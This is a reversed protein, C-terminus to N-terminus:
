RITSYQFHWIANSVKDYLVDLKYLTNNKWLEVTHMLARSGRPDAAGKSGNIAQELVQVPVFRAPNEMHKAASVSFGLVGASREAAAIEPLASMMILVYYKLGTELVEGMAEAYPQFHINPNYVPGYVDHAASEGRGGPLNGCSSQLDMCTGLNYRGDPDIYKFPNSNAYAFRNFTEGTTTNTTVPDPSLFRGAVPDYYRQQMYVLGTDADNMHGTFGLTPIAGQVSKGYPEYKTQSIMGGLADTRATPSGLADTHLFQTGAPGVEAIAHNHLYIYRTAAGVPGAQLIQGDQSYIQIRNVGDTGVVSIRHGLGDYGYSAVGPASAMRNGLDFTYQKGDRQTINGQVDYSYNFNYGTSGSVSMLRNTGPYPYNFLLNRAPTITTGTITSATLNDLSDYSYTVTGWLAPAAVSKLRDLEDYGMIRSTGALNDVIMSVNGNEDYTYTDNLNGNDTSVWPLPRVHQTLSHQIGNGYKFGAIAGNPHYAIETAYASVQQPEGLANPNYTVASGDPYTLQSLSANSDYARGINYTTGGYVLTESINHRRNDYTNTWVAGGSAITLPLGDTTFTRSIGPSGDAYSTTTLRNRADYGFSVKREPAVSGTDCNTPSPLANGSARWIVNNAADYAQVTAGTEPEVTKCLRANGDYVYSRTASLGSGSRTISISKGFIDRAITLHVDLPALTATIAGETPEDFAQFSNTSVQGKPNTVAKQFGGLYNSITSLVGLESDVRIATVRGLADYETRVGAAIDDANRKPYSEFTTHGNHDFQRKVLRGTGSRNSIDETYSYVPRWLGDYYSITRANGTAVTQVWHGAPLDYESAAVPAFTITTGNWAVPGGTPYTIASLRGATYGFTTTFNAADTVSSFNGINDIVASESSGDAHSISQPIGRKYNSFTTSQYKGDKVTNLTGDAFYTMTADLHGFKTVSMLTATNADYGNLVMQTNTNTETVSGVQGLVWKSVNDVYQTLETRGPNLSSVRTVLTPRAFNDFQTAEWKFTEGQQTTLRQDLPTLRAGFEADGMADGAEGLIIGLDRYRSTSVRGGVNVQELRGESIQYHNGFVHETADGKPDTVTVTKNTVCGNCPSWSANPSGYNYNWTMTPLGPGDITKSTLSFTNFYIPTFYIDPAGAPCEKRIDSRGHTTATVTFNGAAGSPHVMTGTYAIGVGAGPGDCGGSPLTASPILTDTSAFNWRSGDPLLVNDLNPFTSADTHYGYTWTRTGDSISQVLMDGKADPPFYTLSITRAPTESSTITMLNRPHAPDYTYRVWNGFRDTVLTPLIWVEKRALRYISAGANPTAGPDTVTAVFKETGDDAGRQTTILSADGGPARAMLLTDNPKMLQTATFDVMWNFTYRTGDPSTAVFGDGQTKGATTDSDLTPVCSIAWFKSTIAPYTQLPLDPSADTHGVRSLVRQDGVGPVYLYNGHWYEEPAWWSSTPTGPVPPPVSYQACRLMPNAGSARWGELKPFIGHMHPVDMEWRGFARGGLVKSDARLRRGISVPLKNNGRLNVDTQTFELAGNYLNVSDGFLDPGMQTVANPAKIRKYQEEYTTTDQALAGSSAVWLAAVLLQPVHKRLRSSTAHLSDETM